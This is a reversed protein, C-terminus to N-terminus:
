TSGPPTVHRNFSMIPLRASYGAAEDELGGNVVLGGEPGNHTLLVGGMSSTAGLLETLNVTKTGHPTVTLNLDSLNRGGNDTIQVYVDIPKGTVNSMALFGTVNSEQKWWIGELKQPSPATATPAQVPAVAPPPQLGYAFVLSHVGDFNRVTACVAAWPWDYQVEVYGSLTAYAAIDQDQLARNLNVVATGSPELTVATLSYEVGNSLHLVPTVTISSTKVGNSLFLSSSFSANTMWYGGVLSQKRSPMRPDRVDELKPATRKHPALVKQQQACVNQALSLTSLIVANLAPLSCGRRLHM